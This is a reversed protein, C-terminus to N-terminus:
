THNYTSHGFDSSLSIKHNEIITLFIHYGFFWFLDEQLSKICNISSKYIKNYYKLRTVVVRHRWTQLLWMVFMIFPNHCYEVPCVSINTRGLSFDCCKQAYQRHQFRYDKLCINQSLLCLTYERSFVSFNLLKMRGQRKRAHSIVILLHWSQTSLNLSNMADLELFHELVM